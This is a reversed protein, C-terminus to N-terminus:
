EWVANNGGGGILSSLSSRTEGLASKGADALFSPLSIKIPISPLGPIDGFSITFLTFESDLFETGQNELEGFLGDVLASGLSGSASGPLSSYGEKAKALVNAAASDSSRLVHMSNVLVPKPTSLDVGQLGVAEITERLASEAWSALPTSRVLPISRLFDGVGSVLAQTGDSYALLTNGWINLIADFAGLAMGGASSFDTNDKARDLFSSIINNGPEAPDAAMAAASLAVRPKLEASGGILSSSFPQPIAHTSPDVVIAICGNKGPPSPNIRPAKLAELAQKFMDFSKDASQKGSENETKYEQSAQRYREAAEAVKRYHYEFGNDISTSASAVRGITNISFDCLDCGTYVGNECDAVSGFGAGGAELYHPCLPSGHIVGDASVPYVKETYLTTTRIEANNRPLLPFYAELTGDPLTNAYGQEMESVAYAYFRTRAFSRVEEDLSSSAPRENALRAQYYAKSRAFAYDFLWTDVSSFFPNQVGSLGALKGAREYLCYDPALGCDALYGELKSGQMNEYAEQAKDVAEATKTNQQGIEEGSDQAKDDTPYQVDEGTLPLPIALGLYHESGGPAIHNSSIVRAANVACLFPLARQLSNLATIAQKALSDRADFVQNGFDMLKLGVGEAFPICSVVIAVGFVLLGFLSM